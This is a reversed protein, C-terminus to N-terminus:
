NNYKYDILKQTIKCKYLKPIKNNENHRLICVFKTGINTSTILYNGQLLSNLLTSRGSNMMGITSIMFKKEKKYKIFNNEYMTKFKNYNLDDHKFIPSISYKDEFFMEAIKDVYTKWIDFRYKLNQM